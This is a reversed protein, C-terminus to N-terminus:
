GLWGDTTQEIEKEDYFKDLVSQMEQIEDENPPTIPRIHTVLCMIGAPLDYYMPEEYPISHRHGTEQLYPIIPPRLLPHGMPPVMPHHGQPLLPMHGHRGLPNHYPYEEMPRGHHYYYTDNVDVPVRIPPFRSPAAGLGFPPAPPFAPPPQSPDFPM